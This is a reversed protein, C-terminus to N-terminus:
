LKTADSNEKRIQAAFIIMIPLIPFCRFFHKTCSQTAGAFCCHTKQPKIHAKGLFPQM